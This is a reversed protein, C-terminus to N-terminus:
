CRTLLLRQLKQLSMLHQLYMAVVQKVSPNKNNTQKQSLTEFYRSKFCCCCITSIFQQKHKPSPEIPSTSAACVHLVSHQDAAHLTAHWAGATAVIGFSPLSLSLCIRLACLAALKASRRLEPETFSGTESFLTSLSQLCCRQGWLCMDVASKKSHYFVM